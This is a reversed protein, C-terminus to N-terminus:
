SDKDTPPQYHVAGAKNTTKDGKKGYATKTDKEASKADSYASGDLRESTEVLHQKHPFSKARLVVKPPDTAYAVVMREPLHMAIAIFDSLLIHFPRSLITYLVGYLSFVM